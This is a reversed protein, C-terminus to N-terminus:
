HIQADTKKQRKIKLLNSKARLYLLPHHKYENVIREFCSKAETMVKLKLSAKGKRFLAQPLYRSTPYKKILEDYAFFAEELDGVEEWCQGMKYLSGEAVKSPPNIELCKKFLGIAYFLKGASQFQVARNFLLEIDERGFGERLKVDVIPVFKQIRCNGQDVVWVEGWKTIALSTPTDMGGEFSGFSGFSCIFKGDPTFKQIRHNGTDAVYINGEKDVAVDDPNLFNGFDSGKGGIRLVLEGKEKDIKELYNGKLV